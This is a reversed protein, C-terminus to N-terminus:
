PTPTRVLWFKMPPEFRARGLGWPFIPIFVCPPVGPQLNGAQNSLRPFRKRRFFNLEFLKIRRSFINIFVRSIAAGLCTSVPYELAVVMSVKRQSPRVNSKSLTCANCTIKIVSTVLLYSQLFTPQLAVTGWPLPIGMSFPCPHKDYRKTASFSTETDRLIHLRLLRGCSGKCFKKPCRPLFIHSFIIHQKLINTGRLPSFCKLGRGCFLIKTGRKPTRM